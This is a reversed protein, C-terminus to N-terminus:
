ENSGEALQRQREFHDVVEEAAKRGILEALEDPGTNAIREISGFFKLLKMKRKQGIGPIATLESTFDRMERRKRHYQVAVRHTEDRIQQVLRFVPSTPEFEVPQDERGKVLLHSIENHKRPPKVLGVLPIAELDLERMAAAAASLQGKGGDIFILNPLPTNEEVARRYRRFVAENMSGFDDQGEITKIKYRRYQARNPKGNEFAVIGAVNEAGQINSIDFSDIREPFYPLELIEQMDGLVKEMDPKLVRFRQEFAIKANTEVLSVLHRKQGRKPVRINVRRGRRETLIKELIKRDEFNVPVNIELPVYDTTYYQALVEGLFESPDFNDKDLDEWFFERRGVIKGERMTFLQLAIRPTDAERYYGFIDIDRDPKTAMKQNDNDLAIVTKSMDRFKAALEFNHNESYQWMRKELERSLERNKGQLFLVADEVAQGYEEPDCLDKVCPGLCRKLHYELCPRPLKGDIEITCTRLQFTRNIVNLTKRALSAPLFPGHYKAGDKLIKRTIVVKPFAENTIKLHPYQKDDKLMVNYRPKHKKILNAELVLAEAETDVVIFEFDAILKMLRNTKRGKGKGSQFYQRVRNRLSKAKGVYIIKGKADKHLYVGPDTPLNKLKKKLEAM